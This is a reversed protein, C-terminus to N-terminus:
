RVAVIILILAAFGLIILLLDRETLRGAAFDSQVKDARAALQALEADSLTSVAANVRAPDIRSAAASKQAAGTAIIQKVKELNKQRTQSSNVLEKHIEAQSVVPTQAQLNPSLAFLSVLICSIVVRTSQWLDFLM